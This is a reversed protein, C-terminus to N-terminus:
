FNLLIDCTLHSMIKQDRSSVSRLDRLTCPSQGHLTLGFGSPGRAVKVTRLSAAESAM